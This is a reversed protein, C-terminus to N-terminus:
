QWIVIRVTSDDVSRIDLVKYIRTCYNREVEIKSFYTNSDNDNFYAIEINSHEFDFVKIFDALTMARQGKKDSMDQIHRAM